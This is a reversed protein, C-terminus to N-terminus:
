RGSLSPKGVVTILVKPAPLKMSMRRGAMAPLATTILVTATLLYASFNM